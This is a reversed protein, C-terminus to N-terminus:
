KDTEERVHTGQPPQGDPPEYELGLMSCLDALCSEFVPTVDTYAFDLQRLVEMCLLGYLRIWCSLFVHVAGPPLRGGILDSYRLMQDRLSGPLEETEMIEFPQREWLRVVEDLFVQEFDRGALLRPSRAEPRDPGPIPSAFMWGFEAPHATVWERMARCMGMLRRSAAEEPYAHRTREMVSGLEQYFDATVAAVLEEHSAYYRYLAPGSLGMERAVANITVASSGHRVLLRRAVDRIEVLTAERIRERRSMAPTAM